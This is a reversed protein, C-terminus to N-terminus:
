ANLPEFVTAAGGSNLEFPEPGSFDTAPRVVAAVKARDADTRTSGAGAAIPGALDVGLAVLLAWGVHPASFVRLRDPRFEALPTEGIADAVLCPPPSAPPRGRVTRSPGEVPVGGGSRRPQRLRRVRDPRPRASGGGAGTLPDPRDARRHRGAGRR